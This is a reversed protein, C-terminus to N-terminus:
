NQARMLIELRPSIYFFNNRRSNAIRSRKILKIIICMMCWKVREKREDKMVMTLVIAGERNGM